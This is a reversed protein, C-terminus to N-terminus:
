IEIVNYYISEEDIVLYNLELSLNENRLFPTANYCDISIGYNKLWYILVTHNYDFKEAVLVIRQSNGINLKAMYDDSGIFQKVVEEAKDNSGISKLYDRHVSIIQDGTVKSCLGAYKLYPFSDDGNVGSTNLEIVTLNGCRDIALFYFRNSIEKAIPFDTQIILFDDKLCNLNDVLWNKLFLRQVDDLKTFSTVGARSRRYVPWNIVTM